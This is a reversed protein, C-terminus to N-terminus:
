QRHNCHPQPDHSCTRHPRTPRGRSPQPFPSPRPHPHRRRPRQRHSFRTRPLFHFFSRRISDHFFVEMVRKGNSNRETVGDLKNNKLLIMRTNGNPLKFNEYDGKIKSIDIQEIDKIIPTPDPVEIKRPVGEFLDNIVANLRASESAEDNIARSLDDEVTRSATNEANTEIDDEISNLKREIEQELDSANKKAGGLLKQVGEGLHGRRGLVGLGILVAASSLGISWNRVKNNKQQENTQLTEPETKTEPTAAPAAAQSKEATKNYIQSLYNSEAMFNIKSISM